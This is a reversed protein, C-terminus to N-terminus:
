RQPDRRRASLSGLQVRVPEGSRLRTEVFFRDPGDSVLREYRPQRGSWPDAAERRELDRWAVIGGVRAVL